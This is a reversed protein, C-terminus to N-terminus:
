IFLNLDEVEKLNRQQSDINNSFVKCIFDKNEKTMSNWLSPSIALNEVHKLLLNTILKKQEDEHKDLIQTDIFRFFSRHKRFFSLLIYTHNHQPFITLFMYKLDINPKTLDNIMNGDFDKELSICSSCAIPYKNSLDIIRTIINNYRENRLNNNVNDRTKNLCRSAAKLEKLIFKFRPIQILLNKIDENKKIFFHKKLEKYNNKQTWELTNEHAKTHSLKVNHEKALAKYAYLFEQQDNGEEYDYLDIPKFIEQDHHKCFGTFVTAKNLGKKEPKWDPENDSTTMQFMMIHGDESINKLVRNRQISHAEIIESSCEDDKYFCERMQYRKYLTDFAKITRGAVEKRDSISNRKM